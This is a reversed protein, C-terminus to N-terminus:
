DDSDDDDMPMATGARLAHYQASLFDGFTAPQDLDDDDTYGYARAAKTLDDDGSVVTVQRKPRSIRAQEAQKRLQRISPLEYESDDDDDQAASKQMKMQGMGQKIGEAIATKILDDLPIVDPADDQHLAKELQGVRLHVAGDYCQGLHLKELMDLRDGIPLHSASKKLGTHSELQKVRDHLSAGGMADGKDMPMQEDDEEEDGEDMPMEGDPPAMQEQEDGDDDDDMMASPDNGGGGASQLVQLMQQVLQTLQQTLQPDM